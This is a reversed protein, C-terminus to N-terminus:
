AACRGEFVIDYLDYESPSSVGAGALRRLDGPRHVPDALHPGVLAYNANREM